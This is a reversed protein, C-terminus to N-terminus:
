LFWWIDREPLGAEFHHILCQSANACPKVHHPPFIESQGRAPDVRRLTKFCFFSLLLTGGEERYFIVSKQRKTRIFGCFHRKRRRHSLYVSLDGWFSNKRALYVSVQIFNNRKTGVESLLFLIHGALRFQCKASRLTSLKWHVIIYHEDWYYPIKDCKQRSQSTKGHNIIYVCGEAGHTDYIPVSIM